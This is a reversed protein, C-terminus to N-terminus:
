KTAKELVKRITNAYEKMQVKTITPHLLFMLSTEGLKKANALREKPVLRKDKFCKEMYIESCSGHFAPYGLSNIENVIRDRSWESSICNM